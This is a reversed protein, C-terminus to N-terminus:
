TFIFSFHYVFIYLEIHVYISCGCINIVNIVCLLFLAVNLVNAEVNQYQTVSM